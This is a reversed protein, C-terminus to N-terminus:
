AIVGMRRYVRELAYRTADILHNKEDPYGSIIEGDQLGSMICGTGYLSELSSGSVTIKRSLDKENQLVILATMIKTLSSPDAQRDANKDIIVTNSDLNILLDIQSYLTVDGTYDAASAPLVASTLILATCCIFIIFKKM